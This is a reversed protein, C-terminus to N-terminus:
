SSQKGTAKIDHDPHSVIISRATGPAAEEIDSGTEQNGALQAMKFNVVYDVYPREEAFNLITSRHLKGGFSIEGSKGYAWPSLFRKIDEDLKTELVSADGIGKIAFEFSV